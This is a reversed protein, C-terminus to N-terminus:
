FAAFLRAQLDQYAEDPLSQDWNVVIVAGDPRVIFMSGINPYNKDSHTWKGSHTLTTGFQGQRVGVGLGYGSSPDYAFDQPARVWPREPAFWHMAFRAYDEVSVSWGGYGAAKSMRGAVAAGGAGAPEMVKAKCYDAYYQGSMAGILTGLIAYNANSYQYSGRAGFNAAEKLATRTMASQSSLNQKRISTKGYILRKPLGSTHTAFQVLSRSQMPLAATLRLSKFVSEMEAVTSNWSFESDELLENMCIATIAKSLSAMPYARDPSRKVGHSFAIQDNQGVAISSKTVDHKAMWDHWAQTIAEQQIPQEQRTVERADSQNVPQAAEVRLVEVGLSQMTVSGLTALGILLILCGLIKRLSM